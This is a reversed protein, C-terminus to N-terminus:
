LIGQFVLNKIKFSNNIQKKCELERIYCTLPDNNQISLDIEKNYECGFAILAKIAERKTKKIAIQLPTQHFKDKLDSNLKFSCLLLVCDYKDLECAIHLLTQEKDNKIENLDFIKRLSNIKLVYHLSNLQNENIFNILLNLLDSYKNKYIYQIFFHTIEVNYGKICEFASM